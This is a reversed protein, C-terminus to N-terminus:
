NGKIRKYSAIADAKKNVGLKEYSSAIHKKVTSHSVFLIKSIAEATYGESVLDMVECERKTLPIKYNGATRLKKRAEIFQKAYPIIKNAFPTGIDELIPLLEHAHEAFQIICDDPEALELAKELPVRADKLGSTHYTCISEFMLSLMVGILNQKELYLEYMKHSMEELKTYDGKECLIKAIIVYSTDRAPAMLKAASVNGERLWKPIQDYKGSYSYVYALIFEYCCLMIPNDLNEVEQMLQLLIEDIQKVDGRSIAIRLLLFSASLVIGHQERARAKYLAKYVYMEAKEVNGTIYEYEARILYEYGTGCGNAITNFIDFDKEVLEIIHLMGGPRQHYLFLTLPVGFTIIIDSNFIRSTGGHFYRNARKYCEFMKDINNFASVSEILAIEGLVQDREPLDEMRRYYSAAEQLMKTGKKIDIIVGYSYIFTLYGIPNSIKTEFDMRKFAKAIVFPATNMLASAHRGSMIDLVQEHDRAKSFADIAEIRNGSAVCWEGQRIYIDREDVNEKEFEDLLLSRLMEHFSYVGTKQDFKIFCNSEHLQIIVNRIARKSTVFQAQDLTFSNLKSIKLLLMREEESFREYVASRMLGTGFEIDELTGHAHYHLLALYIASTWGSTKEYLFDVQESDLPLDNLVFFDDIEMKSFYFEDQELSYAKHQRVLDDMDVPLKTRSILVFHLEQIDTDAMRMIIKILESSHCLHMDDLVVVVPESNMFSKLTAILYDIEIETRPMGNEFMKKGLQANTMEVSHCFKAWTWIDETDDDEFTFWINKAKRKKKLFDRVATTKGFGMGTTVFFIRHTFINELAKKIHGRHLIRPKLIQGKGNREMMVNETKYNNESGALM